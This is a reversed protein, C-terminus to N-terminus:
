DTVVCAIQRLRESLRPVAFDVLARLKLPVLRHRAYVLSVPTPACEYERLVRILRGGALGREAQYCTLQAIGLGAEAAALASEAITTALRARIPFTVDAGSEHFWWTSLPGLTSWAVADHAMLEGPHTPTGRRALYSPSACTVMRVHGLPRAILTSDELIAIRLAADVHEDTLSVVRDVLLLRLNIEPYAALFELVVPQLHLRGFGVPATVTLEGKPTRYEGTVAEEADKLDDLMRECAALFSQGEETLSVRRTTRVLLRVGLSAELEGVRRSLTPLPVGQLRAAASFGGARAVVVFASMSELRDM